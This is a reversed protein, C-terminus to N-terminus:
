DARVIIVRYPALAQPCADGRQAPKRRTMRYTLACCKGTRPMQWGHLAHEMGLSPALGRDEEASGLCGESSRQPHQKCITM